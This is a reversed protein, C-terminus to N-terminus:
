PCTAPKLADHRFWEWHSRGAAYGTTDGFYVRSPIPTGRAIATGTLLPDGDYSVTIAFTAPDIDVTYTHFTDSTPIAVEPGRENDAALLFMAGDEIQVM